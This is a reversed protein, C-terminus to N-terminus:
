RHGDHRSKAAKLQEKLKAERTALGLARSRQGDGVSSAIMPPITEYHRAVDWGGDRISEETAQYRGMLTDGLEALRGDLLLDMAQTLTQLERTRAPGIDKPPHQVMLVQSTYSAVRHDQWKTEAIGAKGCTFKAQAKLGRM